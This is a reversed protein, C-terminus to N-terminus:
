RVVLWTGLLLLAIGALRSADLVRAQGVLLGFHDLLVGVLLQGVIIMTLTKTVGLRVICYSLAGVLVLGLGGALWAYWPILRWGSLDAASRQWLFPLCFVAGGLHVIFVSGIIGVHKGMLSALPGQIGAALGGVLALLLLWAFESM